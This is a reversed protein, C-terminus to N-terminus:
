NENLPIIEVEGNVMKTRIMGEAVLYDVMREITKQQDKHAFARGLMFCCFSAAGLLFWLITISEM